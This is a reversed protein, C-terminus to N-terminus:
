WHSEDYKETTLVADHLCILENTTQPALRACDKVITLIEVLIGTRIPSFYCTHMFDAPCGTIVDQVITSESIVM